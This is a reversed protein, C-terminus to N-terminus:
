SAPCLRFSWHPHLLPTREGPGGSRGLPSSFTVREWSLLQLGRWLLPTREGPGGSRGLPSSRGEGVSHGSPEWSWVSMHAGSFWEGGSGSVSSGWCPNSPSLFSWRVWVEGFVLKRERGSFIIFVGFYTTAQFCVYLVCTLLRYVNYVCYLPDRVLRTESQLLITLIKFM